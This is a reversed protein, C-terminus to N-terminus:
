LGKPDYLVRFFQHPVDTPKPTYTAIFRDFLVDVFEMKKWPGDVSAASEVRWRSDQLQNFPFEAIVYSQIRVQRPSGPTIPEIVEILPPPVSVLNLSQSFRVGFRDELVFTYSGSDSEKFSAIDLAASTTVLGTSVNIEHFWGFRLPPAGLIDPHVQM